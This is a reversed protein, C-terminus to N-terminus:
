SVRSLRAASLRAALAAAVADADDFVLRVPLVDVETAGEPLRVVDKETTVLRAEHRRALTALRDLDRASFRHHDPFARRAVLEAGVNELTRFFKEPRGIGAFAVVRRGSWTQAAPQARLRARFAPKEATAMLAAAAAGDGIVILADAAAFQAALPARLPGAPACRGNGAGYHSDVVLFSFDPAIRRSHFGDDLILATAGMDRALKASAARDAGVITLGHRALLLAEDGTRDPSATADVAFPSARADRRGYGRTLLAPREGEAVLLRALAIATPTKGDGGATLGGVVIAPLAPRPSERRLRRQALAGTLAGLPALLRAAVGDDRWFAPARPLSM